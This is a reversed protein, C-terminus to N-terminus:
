LTKVEEEVPAQQRLIYTMIAEHIHRAVKYPMTNKKKCQELEGYGTMVLIPRLGARLGCEIDIQKDGILYSQSRDLYFGQAALDSAAQEIMGINPKRWSQLHDYRPNPHDPHTPAYYCADLSAGSEQLRDQIYRHIEQVREETVIGKVIGAQNTVLVLKYGAKKAAVLAEIAGPVFRVQEISKIYGGLEDYIITGDRDLFIAKVPEMTAPTTNPKTM